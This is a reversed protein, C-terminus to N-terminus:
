AQAKWCMHSVRFLKDQTYEKHVLNNDDEKFDSKAIFNIIHM